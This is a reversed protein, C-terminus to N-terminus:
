RVWVAIEPELPTNIVRIRDRTKKLTGSCREIRDLAQKSVTELVIHNGCSRYGFGSQHDVRCVVLWPLYRSNKTRPAVDMPQDMDNLERRHM